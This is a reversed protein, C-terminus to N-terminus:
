KRLKKTIYDIIRKFLNPKKYTVKNLNNVLENKDISKIFKKFKQIEVEKEKVDLESRKIENEILTNANEKEKIEENKLYHIYENIKSKM